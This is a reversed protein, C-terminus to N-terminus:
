MFNQLEMVPTTNKNSWVLHLRHILDNSCEGIANNILITWYQNDNVLDIGICLKYVHQQLIMDRAVLPAYAIELHKQQPTGIVCKCCWLLCSYLM